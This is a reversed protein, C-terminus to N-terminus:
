KECKRRRWVLKVMFCSAVTIVLALVRGGVLGALVILFLILYGSNGGRETGMKEELEIMEPKTHVTQSSTSSRHEFEEKAETRYREGEEEKEDELLQWPTSKGKCVLGQHDFNYKQETCEGKMLKDEGRCGSVESSFDAEREKEKKGKRITDFKKPMLKKFIKRRIKCSRSHEKECILNGGEDVAGAKSEWRKDHNLLEYMTRNEIKRNAEVGGVMNLRPEGVQIEKVPSDSELSEVLHYRDSASAYEEANIRERKSDRRLRLLSLVRQILPPFALLCTKLWCIPRQGVYELFILLFASMTIGVAIRTTSLALAIVVFMKLVSFLLRKEKRNSGSNGDVVVCGMLSQNSDLILDERALVECRDVNNYQLELNDQSQCNEDIIVPEVTLERSNSFGVPDSIAVEEVVRPESYQQHQHQQKKRKKIPKKLRDRNKVFLDVLSTPFGTEVVLSNPRPPQLDAVLRSIRSVKAKKWPWPM